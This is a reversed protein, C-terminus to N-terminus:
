ARLLRRPAVVRQEERLALQELEVAASVHLRDDGEELLLEGLGAEPMEGARAEVHRQRRRSPAEDAVEGALAVSGGARRRRVDALHRRSLEVERAQEEGVLEVIRSPARLEQGEEVFPEDAGLLRDDADVQAEVEGLM